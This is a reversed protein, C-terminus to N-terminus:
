VSPLSTALATAAATFSGADAIAVFSRIAKLKDM